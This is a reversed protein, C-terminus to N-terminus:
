EINNGTAATRKSHMANNKAKLKLWAVDDITAKSLHHHSSRLSPTLARSSATVIYKNGYLRSEQSYTLIPLRGLLQQYRRRLWRSRHYRPLQPPLLCPVVKGRSEKCTRNPPKRVPGVFDELGKFISSNHSALGQSAVRSLGARSKERRGWEMQRDPITQLPPLIKEWQATFFRWRINVERRKSFSGLLKVEDSDPRARGPLPPPNDLAGPKLPKTTRSLPSTLLARLQPSYSPPRSKVVSPIIRPPAASDTLFAEMLEYKFKGKRGYALDLVHAYARVGGNNAAEIKCIDKRIRRLKRGRLTSGETRLIAHIDDAAKLRFFQRLHLHPLLRVQRLYQRYLDVFPTAPM